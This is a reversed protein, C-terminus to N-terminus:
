DFRLSKVPNARAASSAHYLTAAVTLVFGIIGAVLFPTVTLDMRYPFPDLWYKGLVFWSVPWAIVLSVALLIMFEKVVLMILQTETGGLVKRIGIEKTRRQVAFSALGFLGLSAILIALFAFVIMLGGTTEQEQYRSALDDDVFTLDLPRQAEFESWAQQIYETGAVESDQVFRVTLLGFPQRALRMVVPGIEETLARFHYDKVVGVIESEQADVWALRKGIADNEWGFLRAAAENIVFAQTTDSPFDRSFFRGAAMEMGFTDIYDVDARVLNATFTDSSDRGEPLFLRLEGTRGPVGSAFSANAISSHQLLQQRFSEFTTNDNATDMQIVAVAEKDFGLSKNKMYEVQNRVVLTGSILMLSVAFQLVVLGQRLRSRSAGGTILGRLVQVPKFASLVFAPYAGALLTCFLVLGAGLLVMSPDLLSVATLDRDTVNRLWGMSLVVILIAIASSILVTIFSETLFRAVLDTQQAGVAKRVGVEKARMTSRATSLNTFNICALLLIFLAIVSFAIVSTYNGTAGLEGQRASHLHIETLPQAVFTWNIGFQRGTAGARTEYVATIEDVFVSLDTDPALVFYTFMGINFWAADRQTRGAPPINMGSVVFDYTVHSPQTPREVVGSVTMDNGNISVNRGVADVTKFLRQATDDTIVVDGPSNLAAVPDGAMFRAPFVSFFSSDAILIEEEELSVDDFVVQGDFEQVRVAFEISSVDDRFAPMAAYPAVAFNSETGGLIASAAVRVTRDADPYHRDYSLEHRVFVLILLCSALGVALGVINILSFGLDRVLGRFVLALTNRLM